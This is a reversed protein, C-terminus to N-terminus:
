SLYLSCFIEKTSALFASVISQRIFYNQCLNREFRILAQCEARAFLQLSVRIRYRNSKGKRRKHENNKFTFSWIVLKELGSGALVGFLFTRQFFLILEIIYFLNFKTSIKCFNCACNFDAISYKNWVNYRLIKNYMM